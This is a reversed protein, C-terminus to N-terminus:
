RHQQNILYAQWSVAILIQDTFKLRIMKSKFIEFTVMWSMILDGWKRGLKISINSSLLFITLIHSCVPRLPLGKESLPCPSSTPLHNRPHHYRCASKYKCNGTKMFFECEPQGPREPFEGNQLMQHNASRTGNKRTNTSNSNHLEM